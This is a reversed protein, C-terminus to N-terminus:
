IVPFMNQQVIIVLSPLCYNAGFLAVEQKNDSWRVIGDKDQYVTRPKQAELQVFSSLLILLLCSNRFM